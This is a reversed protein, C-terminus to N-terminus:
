NEEALKARSLCYIYERVAAAAEHNNGRPQAIVRSDGYRDMFDQAIKLQKEPTDADDPVPIWIGFIMQDGHKQVLSYLDNMPQGRWYDVGAEIMAPVLSEIKGCSHLEFYMGLRHAEDVIRRLHPVLKQRCIELSFFPARQHGWDDHFTLIEAGFYKKFYGLLEIWFDTLRTLLANLEEEIEEDVMAIMAEECDLFSILREFMGTFFTVNIMVDDDLYKKNRQACGEWDLKSLDPFAIKERWEEVCSLLPAGPRVTSGGVQPVYEWIIGFLDAGGAQELDFPEQEQVFARCINDPIIRPNFALVEDAFPIWLPKEGKLFRSFNERPTIPRAYRKPAPFGPRHSYYEGMVKLEDRYAIWKDSM